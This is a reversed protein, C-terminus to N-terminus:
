MYISRGGNLWRSNTKIPSIAKRVHTANIAACSSRVCCNLTVSYDIIAKEVCHCMKVRVIESAAKYVRIYTVIIVTFNFCPYNAM